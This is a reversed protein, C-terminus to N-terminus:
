AKVTKKHVIMVHCIYQITCQQMISQLDSSFQHDSFCNVKYM